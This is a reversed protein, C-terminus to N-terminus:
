IPSNHELPNSSYSPIPRDFRVKRKAELLEIPSSSAIRIRLEGDPFESQVFHILRKWPDSVQIVIPEEVKTKPPM